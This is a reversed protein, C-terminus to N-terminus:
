CCGQKDSPHGLFITLQPVPPTALSKAPPTSQRAVGFTNPAVDKINKLYIFYQRLEKKTIIDPSKNSYEALQRVVRVYNEQTGESLGRLQMDKIMRQRLIKM